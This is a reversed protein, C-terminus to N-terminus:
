YHHASELAVLMSRIQYIDMQIQAVVSSYTSYDILDKYYSNSM